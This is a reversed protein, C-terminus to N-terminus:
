CALPGTAQRISVRRACEAPGCCTPMNAQKSPIRLWNTLRSPCGPCVIKHKNTFMPVNAQKGFIRVWHVLQNLSVPCDAKPLPVQRTPRIYWSHAAPVGFLRLLLIRVPYTVSKHSTAKNPKRAECTQPKVTEPVVIPFCHKFDTRFWM